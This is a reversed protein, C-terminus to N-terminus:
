RKKRVTLFFWLLLIIVLVVTAIYFLINSEEDVPEVPTEYEILEWQELDPNYRLIHDYEGNDTTDILYEKDDTKEVLTQITDDNSHYTTYTGNANDDTLYGIEGVNIADILITLRKTPSTANNQDIAQIGIHYKGPKTWSHNVSAITANPLFDSTTNTGDDWDFTYKITDNDPDTSVATYTYNINKSGRKKGTVIPQTPQLNGALITVTTTNTNTLENDDKVELTVNYIGITTYTHYTLPTTLWDTDWSGDSTYDWRYGVINKGEQAYSHSGNFNINEDPFGFSPEGADAVPPISGARLIDGVTGSTVIDDEEVPETIHETKEKVINTKMTYTGPKLRIDTSYCIYFSFTQQSPITVPLTIPEEQKEKHVTINIGEHITDGNENTIIHNFATINVPHDENNIIQEQIYKSSGAVLNINHNIVTNNNSSSSVFNLSIFILFCSIILVSIIKKHEKM